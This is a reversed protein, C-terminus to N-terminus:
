SVAEFVKSPGTPPYLVRLSGGAAGVVCDLM